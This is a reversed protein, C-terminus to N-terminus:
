SAAQTAEMRNHGAHANITLSKLNKKISRSWHCAIEQIWALIIWMLSVDHLVIKIIYNTPLMSFIMISELNM